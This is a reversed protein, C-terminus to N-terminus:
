RKVFASKFAQCFKYIVSFLQADFFTLPKGCVYKPKKSDDTLEREEM